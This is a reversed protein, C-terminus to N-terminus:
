SGISSCPERSPPPGQQRFHFATLLAESDDRGGDAVMQFKVVLLNIEVPLRHLCRILKERERLCIERKMAVERIKAM